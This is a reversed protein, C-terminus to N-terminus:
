GIIDHKFTKENPKLILHYIEGALKGRFLYLSHALLIATLLKLEELKAMTGFPAQHLRLM